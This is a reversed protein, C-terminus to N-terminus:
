YILWWGIETAPKPRLTFWTFSKIDDYRCFRHQPSRCEEPTNRLTSHYDKVSIEPCRIPGMKLRRYLIVMRRQTIGWFVVSRMFMAASAQFWPFSHKKFKPKPPNPPPCLRAFEMTQAGPRRYGNRLLSHPDWHRDPYTYFTFVQQGHRYNLWSGQTTWGM